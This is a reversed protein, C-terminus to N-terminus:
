RKENVCADNSHIVLQSGNDTTDSEIDGSKVSPEQSGGETPRSLGRDRIFLCLVLCIGEFIVWSMFVQRCAAIYADKITNSQATPLSDLDPVSFMAGLLQSKLAAPLSKIESSFKNSFIATSMAMGTAGGMSRTFNRVSTVVARDEKSTHAQVAVLTPQFVFGVGAGEVILVLVITWHPTNMDFLMTLGSGLTWLAYGLWIVEGYRKFYSIYQGSIVSFVSQSAVFPITMIAANMLSWRRGCQYYIPLFYINAYYVIGILFNQIMIACVPPHRFFRLPMLPMIAWKKEVLVFIVLLASGLVLMSIIAPHNWPYGVSGGMSIAILLLILGASSSLLGWYDIAQLKEKVSGTVLSPPVVFAM